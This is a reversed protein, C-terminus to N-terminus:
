GCKKCAGMGKAESLPVTKITRKLGRCHISTHYKNGYSTIYVASVFSHNGCFECPIYYSGSQNKEGMAEALSTVQISLSLHTCSRQRHYVTGYETIYVLTEEENRAKEKTVDYGVWPKVVCKSEITYKPLAMIGFPSQIQRYEKLVVLDENTNWVEKTAYAYTAVEKGRQQLRTLDDVYYLFAFLISFINIMFFLFFSFALSAEVCMSAKYESPPLSFTRKTKKSKPNLLLDIKNPNIKNRSAQLSTKKCHVITVTKKWFFM